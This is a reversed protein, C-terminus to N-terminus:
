DGRTERFKWFDLVGFVCGFVFLCGGVECVGECMVCLVGERFGFISILYKNVIVFLVSSVVSLMLVFVVSVGDNM